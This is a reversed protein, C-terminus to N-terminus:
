RVQSFLQKYEMATLIWFWIMLPPFFLSNLFFSHVIIAVLTTRGILSMKQFVYTLFLIYSILGLSGTAAALFIFSNEVGAGAHNTQWDSSLYGYEEKAYRLTNFGVGLIPHDSFIELGQKMSTIREELSFIRELKVGEGGPRPLLITGFGLIIIVIVILSYKRKALSYYIISLIFSLFSSRSYTFLLTAFIMIKILISSTTSAILLIFVLAMMLGFFNPDLLTSFIRKYHPDWGLYFLNRLDPYLFYQLWGLAAMIIGAWILSKVMLEKKMIRQKLLYAVTLYVSFYAAFRILYLSSIIRESIGLDLSTFTLSLFSIIM